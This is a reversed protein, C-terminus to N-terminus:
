RSICSASSRLSACNRRCTGAGVPRGFARRGPWTGLHLRGAHRHVLEDEAQRRLYANSAGVLAGVGLAIMLSIPVVLWAPTFGFGFGVGSKAFLIGVVMAALAMVSEISLDMYGAIILLSLGIALTGVFTSQEVINAFIGIQFYNPITLSFLV